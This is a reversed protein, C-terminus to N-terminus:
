SCVHCLRYQILAQINSIWKQNLNILDQCRICGHTFGVPILACDSSVAISTNGSRRYSDIPKTRYYAM